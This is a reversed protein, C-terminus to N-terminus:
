WPFAKPDFLFKPTIGQLSRIPVREFHVLLVVILFIIMGLGLREGFSSVNDLVM